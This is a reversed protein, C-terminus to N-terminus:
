LKLFMLFPFMCPFFFFFFNIQLGDKSHLKMNTEFVFLYGFKLSRLIFIQKEFSTNLHGNIETVTDMNDLTIILIYKIYM